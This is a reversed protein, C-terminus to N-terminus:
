SASNRAPTAVPTFPTIAPMRRRRAVTKLLWKQAPREVAIHAGIATFMTLAFLITTALIWQGLSDSEIGLQRMLPVHLLYFAFSAEGMVVLPRTSLPRALGKKPATA